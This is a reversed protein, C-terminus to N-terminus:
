LVGRADLEAGALLVLRMAQLRAELGEPKRAEESTFLYGFFWLYKVVLGAYLAFDIEGTDKIGVGDVYARKLRHLMGLADSPNLFADYISDFVLTCIDAGVPSNGVFGWDIVVLQAGVLFLNPPWFDNHAPLQPLRRLSRYLAERSDLLRCALKQENFSFHEFRCWKEQSRLLGDFDRRLAIYGGLWDRCVWSEEPLRGLSRQWTGLAYAAREYDSEGWETGPRGVVWELNLSIGDGIEAQSICRVSRFDQTEFRSVESGYFLAERRWYLCDQPDMSAGWREGARIDPHLHKLARRGGDPLKAEILAGTSSVVPAYDVARWAEPQGDVDFLPSFLAERGEPSSNPSWAQFQNRPM